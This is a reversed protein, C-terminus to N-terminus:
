MFIESNEIPEIAIEMKCQTFM